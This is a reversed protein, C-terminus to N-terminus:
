SISYGLKKFSSNIQLLQIIHINPYYVTYTYTQASKVVPNLM